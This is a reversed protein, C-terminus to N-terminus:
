GLSSIEIGQIIVIKSTAPMQIDASVSDDLYDSLTPPCGGLFVDHSFLGPPLSLDGSTAFERFFVPVRTIGQKILGYARHYGDRLLYHGSYLAVQMFSQMEAVLFGLGTVGPQVQTQFQGALRLNPNRSSLVYANKSSDFQFPLPKPSPIPLTFQALSLIDNQNLAAAREVAQDVFVSPQIAIVKSLDAIAVRWGEQMFQQSAPQTSLNAIHAAISDVGIDIIGDQNLGLRRSAVSRIAAEAKQNYEPNDQLDTRRGSLWLIAEQKSMWGILARAPRLPIVISSEPTQNQNKDSM